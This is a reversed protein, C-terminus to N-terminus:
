RTIRYGYHFGFTIGTKPSVSIEKGKELAAWDSARVPMSTVSGNVSIIAMYKEPEISTMVVAGVKGNAGVGTGIGTSTASPIYQRDIVTARVPPGPRQFIMDMILMAIACIFAVLSFGLSAAVLKEINM